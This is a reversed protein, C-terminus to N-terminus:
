GSLSFGRHGGPSHRPGVMSIWCGVLTRSPPPPPFLPLRMIIFHIITDDGTVKAILMSSTTYHYKLNLRM